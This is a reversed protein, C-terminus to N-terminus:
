TKGVPIERAARAAEPRKPLTVTLVGKDLKASVKDHDVSDPVPLARHFSGYSRETVHYQGKKEERESRKEGSVVLLSDSLSVKVDKEELGPLEIELTLAKESEHLDLSPLPGGAMEEGLFHRFRTSSGLFRDFVRDLEGRMTALPDSAWDAFPQTKAERVKIDKAM